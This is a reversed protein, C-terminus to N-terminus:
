KGCYHFIDAGLIYKDVGIQRYKITSNDEVDHTPVNDRCIKLVYFKDKQRYLQCTIKGDDFVHNKVEMMAIVPGNRCSYPQAMYSGDRLGLKIPTQNSSQGHALGGASIAIVTPALALGALIKSHLAHRKTM